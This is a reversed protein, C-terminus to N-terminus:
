NRTVTVPDLRGYGNFRTTIAAAYAGMGRFLVHDGEALDAPLGVMGPLRDLSDCTPGFVVRAVPKGQRARGGPSLVTIRRNPMDDRLEALGGYIGDNLFVAGDPRVAKVRLGLTVSEAVMARGPECLLEPPADFAAQTAARIAAFIPELRPRQGRDSPFGGGVNLRGLRVGAQQAIGACATIYHAWARPDTCQTGPHFTMSPGLGRTKVERLLAVCDEAPAGFKSGFDYAAGAVPLKLRVSIESGAPIVGALKDLERPCDVSYSKVGAAAAHAIEDPSRVPNNYHLAAGPAFRRVLDIEAPSAVDFAGIGALHLNTLVEADPNAKVAYTVSGPFGDLFRRACATLERPCFFAVPRDPRRAAIYRAPDPWIQHTSQM